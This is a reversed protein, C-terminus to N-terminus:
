NFAQMNACIVVVLTYPHGILNLSAWVTLPEHMKSSVVSGMMTITKKLDGRLRRRWILVLNHRSLRKTYTLRSFGFINRTTKGSMKMM